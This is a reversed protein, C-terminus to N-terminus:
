KGSVEALLALEQQTIRDLSYEQVAFERAGRGLKERLPADELLRAM